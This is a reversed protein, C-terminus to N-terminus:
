GGSPSGETLSTQSNPLLELRVLAGGGAANQAVARGGHVEAVQRVIALGLGSGPMGRAATSRYFRDFVHPLDEADFGPGHDRVVVSAGRVTVEIPMDLGTWTAANDLMNRVARSIRSADGTVVIPELDLGVPPHSPRREFREVEARAVEDLRVDAFDVPQEAGRALEAVDNVIATLEELQTRVDSILRGREDPDPLRGSALLDINARVSTLPTRLEHSADAVLQRQAAVSDELAGLMSNFRGALRGIEDEAGSGDIRLSLDGTEAVREAADSLRAVPAVATRTVAMGLGVAVAVGGATILVMLVVLRRLTDDVEVLPRALVATFGDGVPAFLVRYHVGNATLDRLVPRDGVGTGVPVDFAPLGTSRVVEGEPTIVGVVFPAGEVEIRIPPLTSGVPVAMRELFPLGGLLSTDVRERLESRVVFWTVVSATAVAVAVAAASVLTLRHRFTV